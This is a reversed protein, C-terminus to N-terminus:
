LYGRLADTRAKMDEIQSRIANVEVMTVRKGWTAFRTIM